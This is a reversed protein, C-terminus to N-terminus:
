SPMTHLLLAEAKQPFQVHLSVVRSLTVGDAASQLAIASGKTDLQRCLLSHLVALDAVPRVMGFKGLMFAPYGALMRQQAQIQMQMQAQAQQATGQGQGPGQQAMQKALAHQMQQMQQAFVMLQQQQQMGAYGSWAGYQAPPVMHPPM